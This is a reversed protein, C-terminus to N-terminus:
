LDAEGERRLAALADLIEDREARLKLLEADLKAITKQREIALPGQGTHDRARIARELGEEIEERFVYCLGAELDQVLSPRGEPAPALLIWKDSAARWREANPDWPQTAMADAIREFHREFHAVRDAVAIRMRAVQDEENIPLALQEEREQSALESRRDIATVSNRVGFVAELATTMKAKAMNAVDSVNKVAEAAKM